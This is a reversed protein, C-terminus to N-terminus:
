AIRQKLSKLSIVEVLRRTLGESVKPIYSSHAGLIFFFFGLVLGAPPPPSLLFSFEHAWKPPSFQKKKKTKEATRGTRSTSLLVSRLFSIILSYILLSPYFFFPSSPIIFGNGQKGSGGDSHRKECFDTGPASFSTNWNKKANLKIRGVRGGGGFGSLAKIGRGTEGNKTVYIICWLGKHWRRSM